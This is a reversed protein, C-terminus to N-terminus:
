LKTINTRGKRDVIEARPAPIVSEFVKNDRAVESYYDKQILSLRFVTVLLILLSLILGFKLIWYKWPYGNEERM